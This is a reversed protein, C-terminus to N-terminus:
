IVFIQCYYKVFTILFIFCFYLYLSIGLVFNWVHLLYTRFSKVSLFILLWPTADFCNKSNLSFKPNSRWLILKSSFSIINYACQFNCKFAFNHMSLITNLAFSKFALKRFVFKSYFNIFIIMYVSIRFTFFFSSFQYFIM